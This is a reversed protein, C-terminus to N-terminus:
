IMRNSFLFYIDIETILPFLLCKFENKIALVRINESMATGVPLNEYESVIAKRPIISWADDYFREFYRREDVWFVLQNEEESEKGKSIFM